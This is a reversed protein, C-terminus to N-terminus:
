DPGRRWGTAGPTGGWELALRAVHRAIFAAADGSNDRGPLNRPSKVFIGPTATADKHLSIM